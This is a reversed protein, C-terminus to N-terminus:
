RRSLRRGGFTLGWKNMSRSPKQWRRECNSESSKRRLGTDPRSRRLSGDRKRLAKHVWWAFAPEKVIKNAVAYEAVEIPNLKNLESLPVWTTSGDRWEVQLDWGRTAIRPHRKGYRDEVFGDDKSIANQGNTRHDVIKSLVSFSQGEDDVQSLMNEAIMNAAIAETSGDPFEVEYLRTDLLPDAHRKGFPQGDHDRKRGVITAKKAEGGHPPVVQATLNEDNSEANHDDTGQEPSPTDGAVLHIEDEDDFVDDSVEAMSDRLEPNIDEEKLDDGIKSRVGEDLDVLWIKIDPNAFGDESLGWLSKRVIIKGTKSLIYFAMLDTSVKAVGLWPGLLKHEHPFAGVPDWYLVPEYWDFQAYQSIDPMSGLVDEDPVRGQLQPM